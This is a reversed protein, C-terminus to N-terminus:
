RYKFGFEIETATIEKPTLPIARALSESYATGMKMPISYSSSSHQKKWAPGFVQEIITAAKQNQDISICNDSVVFHLGFFTNVIGLAHLM